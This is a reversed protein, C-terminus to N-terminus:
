VHTYNYKNNLERTWEGCGHYNCRRPAGMKVGMTTTCVCVCVCVCVCWQM